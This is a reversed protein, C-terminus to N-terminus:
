VWKDDIGGAGKWFFRVVSNGKHDGALRQHHKVREMAHHLHQECAKQEEPSLVTAAARKLAGLMVILDHAPVRRRRYIPVLWEGYSEMYHAEGTEMSKALQEIHREYDRLFVRLAAEDYRDSFGAENTVVRQLAIQAIRKRSARLRAAADPM